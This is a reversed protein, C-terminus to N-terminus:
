LPLPDLTFDVNRPSISTTIHEIVHLHEVAYFAARTEVDRGQRQSKGSTNTNRKKMSEFNPM